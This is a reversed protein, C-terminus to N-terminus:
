ATDLRCVALCPDSDPVAAATRMSRRRIAALDLENEPYRAYEALRGFELAPTGFL